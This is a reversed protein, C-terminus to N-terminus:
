LFFADMLINIVRRTSEQKIPLTNELQIFVSRYSKQDFNFTSGQEHQGKMGNMAKTHMHTDAM